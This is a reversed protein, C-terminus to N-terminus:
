ISFGIISSNESESLMSEQSKATLFLIPVTYRQRIRSCIAYGNMLPMMVDLIVLEISEDM